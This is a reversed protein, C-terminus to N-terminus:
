ALNISFNQILMIIYNEEWKILILIIVNQYANIILIIFIHIILVLFALIKVNIAKTIMFNEMILVDPYVNKKKSTGPYEIIFKPSNCSSFCENKEGIFYTDPCNSLCEKTDEKIYEGPDCKEKCTKTIDSKYTFPDTCESTCTNGSNDVVPKGLSDLPNSYM